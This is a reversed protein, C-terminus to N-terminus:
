LWILYKEYFHLTVTISNDKQALCTNFLMRNFGIIMTTPLKLHPMLLM